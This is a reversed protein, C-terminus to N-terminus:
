EHVYLVRLGDAKLRVRLGDPSVTVGSIPHTGVQIEESGCAGSYLHTYSTM